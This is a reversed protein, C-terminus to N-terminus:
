ELKSFDNQIEKYTPTDGIEAGKAMAKRYFEAFTVDEGQFVKTQSYFGTPDFAAPIPIGRKIFQKFADELGETRAISQFLEQQALPGGAVLDREAASGTIGQQGALGVMAADAEGAAQAGLAQAQGVVDLTGGIGSQLTKGSLNAGARIRNAAEMLNQYYPNAKEFTAQGRFLGGNQMKPIEEQVPQVGQVGQQSAEVAGEAAATTANAISEIAPFQASITMEFDDTLITKDEETPIIGIRNAMDTVQAAFRSDLDQMIPFIEQLAQDPINASEDLNLERFMSLLEQQLSKRRRDVIKDFSKKAESTEVPDEENIKGVMVESEDEKIPAVPATVNGKVTQVMNNLVANIEPDGQDFVQPSIGPTGDPFPVGQPTTGQTLNIAKDAPFVEGGKKYRPIPALGSAIGEPLDYFMKRNRWSM